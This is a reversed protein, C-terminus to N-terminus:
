VARWERSTLELEEDDAETVEFVGDLARAQAELRRQFRREDPDLGFAYRRSGSRRYWYCAYVSVLAFLIGVVVGAIAPVDM